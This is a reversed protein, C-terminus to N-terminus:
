SNLRLVQETFRISTSASSYYLGPFYYKEIRKIIKAMTLGFSKPTRTYSLMLGFLLFSFHFIMPAISIARKASGIGVNPEKPIGLTQAHLVIKHLKHQYSYSPCCYRHGTDAIRDRLEPNTVLQLAKSVLEDPTDFSVYHVDVDLEDELGPAKEALLCSGSGIIEFNRAKVQRGSISKSFNLVVKSKNFMDAAADTEIYGSGWGFGHCEVKLGAKTLAEIYTQRDFYKMGIFIIDTVCDRAPIPKRKWAEAYGWSEYVAPINRDQYQALRRRETTIMLDYRQGIHASHNEFRWSDDTCWNLCLVRLEFRIHSLTEEFIENDWQVFFAIKPELNAISEILDANLRSYNKSKLYPSTDFFHVDSAFGNIGQYFGDYETSIGRSQEAYQYKSFVCLIRQNFKSM